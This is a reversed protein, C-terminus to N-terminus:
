TRVSRARPSGACENQPVLRQYTLRLLLLGVLWGASIIHSIFLTWTGLGLRFLHAKRGGRLYLETESLCLLVISWGFTSPYAQVWKFTVLSTESSWGYNFNRVTLSVLLFLAPAIWCRKSASFVRFFRCISAVYLILNLVGVLQLTAYPSLVFAIGLLATGVVFPTYIATEQSPAFAVAEHGPSWFSTQLASVGAIYRCIDGIWVERFVSLGFYLIFSLFLLAAFTRDAIQLRLPSM